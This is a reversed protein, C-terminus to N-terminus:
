SVTKQLFLLSPRVNNYRKLIRKRICFVFFNLSFPSAHNLFGLNNTNQFTM